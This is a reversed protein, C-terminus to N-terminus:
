LDIAKSVAPGDDIEIGLYPVTGAMATDAVYRYIPEHCVRHPQGEQKLRGAIPEPSWGSRLRDIVAACPDPKRILKCHPPRCYQRM